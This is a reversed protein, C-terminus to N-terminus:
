KKEMVSLLLERHSECRVANIQKLRRGKPMLLSTLKFYKNVKGLGKFSFPLFTKLLMEESKELVYKDWAMRYCEPDQLIENLQSVKQDFKSQEEIDLAVIGEEFNQKFGVYDFNVTKDSRDFKVKLAAGELWDQSPNEKSFLFNGLSYFIMKGRYREFGGVVHPHHGVILDVGIEILYRCFERLGPRPLNFYENGGHFTVVIFDAGLKLKSVAEFIRRHDFPAAGASEIGAINFETECIAIIGVKTGSREVVIPSCAEDLSAGAGVYLLGEDNICDITALLGEEGNDLIHNNALTVTDFGVSNIWKIADRGLELTPGSKEIKSDGSLTAELNLVKICNDQLFSSKVPGLADLGKQALVKTFNKNPAFDGFFLLELQSMM